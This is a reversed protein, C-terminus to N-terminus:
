HGAHDHDTAAAAPGSRSSLRALLALADAPMDRGAADREDALGQLMAALETDAREDLRDVAVLPVGMFVCKVVGQRWTADDLHRAYPGLAAAVLRTDNTRLADHLVFSAAPGIPLLPLAHLIALREAPDGQQYLAVIRDAGDPAEALAALLLVRGAAGATWRPHDPLPDRGLTRAARAFLRPATDPETRVRALWEGVPTADLAARLDDLVM